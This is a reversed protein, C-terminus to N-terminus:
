VRGEGAAADADPRDADKVHGVLLARVLLDDADRQAVRDPPPQRVDVVDRRLETVLDLVEELDVLVEVLLARDDCTDEAIAGLRLGADGDRALRRGRLDASCVRARQTMKTETWGQSTHAARTLERTCRTRLALLDFGSRLALVVLTALGSPFTLPPPPHFRS